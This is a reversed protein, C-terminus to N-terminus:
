VKAKRDTLDGNIWRGLMKAPKQQISKIPEKDVEFPQVDMCRGAKVVCSRSKPPKAKMRAWHLAVLVRQLLIRTGPVSSSMLSLDDMFSCKLPLKNGNELAYQPPKM